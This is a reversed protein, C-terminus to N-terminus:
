HFDKFNAFYPNNQRLWEYIVKFKSVDILCRSKIIQRQAPTFNGSMVVYVNTDNTLSSHFNLAGINKDVSQNFFSFSGSIAKHTGGIYSLVYAYPRVPSLLHSTVETLSDSLP